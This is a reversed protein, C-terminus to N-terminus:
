VSGEPGPALAPRLQRRLWARAFKWDRKVTALSVDLAEAIESETLGGFFRSEVVRAARLDLLALEDLAGNLLLIDEEQQGSADIDEISVFICGGGRKNALRTRAHDVLLRRMLQATCALFHARNQWNVPESAILRLYVEHVLATPQLTHNGREHQLYHGALRRLERYITSILADRAASDGNRWNTLLTTIAAASPQAEV